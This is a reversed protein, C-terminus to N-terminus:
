AVANLEALAQKWQKEKMLNLAVNISVDPSFHGLERARIYHANADKTKGMKSLADGSAKYAKAAIDPTLQIARQYAKAAEAPQNTALYANGLGYYALGSRPLERTANTFQIM